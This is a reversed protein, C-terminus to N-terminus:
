PGALAPAVGKRRLVADLNRRYAPVTPDREVAVRLHQEAEDYLGKQALAVGLLNRYLAVDANSAVLGRCREVAAQVRGSRLDANLLAYQAAADLPDAAVARAYVEYAEQVMGESELAKALRVFSSAGAPAGADWSRYHEVADDVRGALVYAVALRRHADGDEPTLALTKEFERAARDPLNQRLLTRGLNYHGNASRPDIKLVSRFQESAEDLRGAELLALGLMGHPIEERPSKRVADSFLSLNDKWVPTRQATAATYAVALAMVGFVAAGARRPASALFRKFVIGLVLCFGVSPLYLYRESLATTAFAAAAFAPLLPVAVLVLAFFLRRERKWALRTLLLFASAVALGRLGQPSVVSVLPTHTRCVNLDVPALLLRLYAAFLAPAEVLYSTSHPSAGPAVGGLVLVRVALYAVAVVAFPVCRGLAKRLPRGPVPFAAEYAVLLAPLVLATEKCLLALAFAATSAALTCRPHRGTALYLCLSSLTFFTFSLEPLGSIWAVSETQIPHVAFLLGAVLPASLARGAPPTGSCPTATALHLPSVCLKRALVFVLATNAGHLLVNVMHYAWSELGFLGHTLLYFVYVLPRYYGPFHWHQTSFITPLHRVDTIWPNSLLQLSDDYVFGHGITNSYVALSVVVVAALAVRDRAGPGLATSAPDPHQSM